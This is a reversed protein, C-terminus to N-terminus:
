SLCRLAGKGLVKGSTVVRRGPHAQGDLDTWSIRANEFRKTLVGSSEAADLGARLIQRIEIDGVPRDIEFELGNHQSVLRIGHRDMWRQLPGSDDRLINHEQAVQRISDTAWDATERVKDVISSVHRRTVDDAFDIVGADSDLLSRLKDVLRYVTSTGVGAEEALTEYHKEGGDTLVTLLEEHAPSLETRVLESEVHKEAQDRLEPLPNSAIEVSERRERVDFYPDNEVWVGSDPALPIGAWSLVNLMSEDLEDRVEDISSWPINGDPDFESSLAMEVKPHSLPDDGGESRPNAPHYNKLRMGRHDDGPLMMSWTDPDTAVSTYHGVIEENDWKYKGRGRQDSAFDALQDIVGGSGVVHDESVQRRIRLYREFQYVRSREHPEGAFYDTNLGVVEAFAVLVRLTEIASVNTSMVQVRISRPTDDPLAQMDEGSNVNKPDPFGPRFQLVVDKDGIDDQAELAYSYENMGGDIHEQGDPPAIQGEWYNASEVEWTEGIADFPDLKEDHDPDFVSVVGWYPDLGHDDWLLKAGFGHTQPEVVRYNESM